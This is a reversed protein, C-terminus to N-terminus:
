VMNFDDFNYTDKNNQYSTEKYVNGQLNEISNQFRFVVDGKFYFHFGKVLNLQNLDANEVNIHFDYKNEKNTLDLLGDFNMTLNPDNISIEGKYNPAKFNGNV